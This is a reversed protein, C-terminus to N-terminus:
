AACAQSLERAVDEMDSLSAKCCLAIDCGANFSARAREALTGYRSLSGMSLDDSLLLNTFGIEDRIVSRIVKPSLSAPLDPDISRYLCHGVMGWLEPAFAQKLVMQFPLFDTSRLIDIETEIVPLDIHSDVEARGHGPLHKIVPRIGHELLRECVITGLQAVESPNRSFARDGISNDTEPFLLDLVPACNVTIDLGRLEGALIDILEGLDLGDEYITRMAPINQCIPARLRQVRGGEQDVLIAADSGLIDRLHDVLNRVQDASEVNEKFLIIGFPRVEELFAREDATIDPGSISFIAPLPM